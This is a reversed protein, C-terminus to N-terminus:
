IQKKEIERQKEAEVRTIQLHDLLQHQEALQCRYLDLITNDLNQLVHVSTM